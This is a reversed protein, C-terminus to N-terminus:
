PVSYVSHAFCVFAVDLSRRWGARARLAFSGLFEKNALRPPRRV